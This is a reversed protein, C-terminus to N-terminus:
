ANSSLEHRIGRPRGSHDAHIIYKEKDQPEVAWTQAKAAEM